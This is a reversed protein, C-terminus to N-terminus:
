KSRKATIVFFVAYGFLLFIEGCFIFEQLHLRPFFVQALPQFTFFPSFTAIVSSNTAFISALVM